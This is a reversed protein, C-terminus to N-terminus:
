ELGFGEANEIAQVLLRRLKEHDSYEPLMLLNFCTHATPLRNTPEGGNRQIKMKLRELGGVPALDSGTVFKLFQKRQPADFARLIEWFGSMYGEQFGVASAVVEASSELNTFDLDKEGCVIAELEEASLCEFVPSSGCVRGFGKKFADFQKQVGVRLYWEKFLEAFEERRSLTVPSPEGEEDLLKVTRREGFAEVSVSFELCFTDEFLQAAERTDMDDPPTWDLVAQLSAAHSPFTQGLDDFTVPLGKLKKFLALPFNVDLGPLNNYVALGLVVGVMWFDDPDNFSQPDFWLYRSESDCKFMGYEPAFLQASLLRFYEKAVGGEDVGEEGVFKVKLPKKLDQPSANQLAVATDQLLRARSVQLLFFV